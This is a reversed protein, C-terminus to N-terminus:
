WVVHLRERTARSPDTRRSIFKRIARLSQTDGHEFGSCEHVILYRNDEPQFELGINIDPKGPVREPAAKGTVSNLCSCPSRHFAVWRRTWTLSPM